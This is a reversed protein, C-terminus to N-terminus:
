LTGDNILITEIGNRNCCKRSIGVMYLFHYVPNKIEEEM